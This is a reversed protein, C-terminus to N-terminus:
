CGLRKAEAATRQHVQDCVVTVTFRDRLATLAPRYRKRWRVGLGIIGVRLTRGTDMRGGSGSEQEARRRRGKRRYHPRCERMGVVAFATFYGNQNIGEVLALCEVHAPALGNKRQGPKESGWANARSSAVGASVSPARFGNDKGACSRPQVWC